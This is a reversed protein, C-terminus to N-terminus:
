RLIEMLARNWGVPGVGESRKVELDVPEYSGDPKQVLVPLDVSELMPLDNQSDGVGITTVEGLERRFIETLTSVARGKDNKGMIHLYRGGRTCSLGRKKIEELVAEAGEGDGIVKFPEDYERMKSLEASELDLGSDEAIKQATMDGFGEIETKTEREVEKLVERLIPYATGQEIVLYEGLQKNSPFPVEFYGRPIFIAGGNESIFPDSIGLEERFKEIEARTKSTCVVLPIEEERIRELAPRAAQYSYTHHDILTGDMDTFIVYKLAEEGKKTREGM